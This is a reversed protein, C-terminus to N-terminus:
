EEEEDPLSGTVGQDLGILGGIAVIGGFIMLRVNSEEESNGWVVMVGGIFLGFAGGIIYGIRRGAVAGAKAGALRSKRSRKKRPRPEDNDEDSV